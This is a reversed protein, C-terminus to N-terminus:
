IIPPTTDKFYSPISMVMHYIDMFVALLIHEKPTAALMLAESIDIVMEGMSITFLCHLWAIVVYIIQFM